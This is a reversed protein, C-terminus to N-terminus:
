KDGISVMYWTGTAIDYSTEAWGNARLTVDKSVKGLGPIDFTVTFIAPKGTHKYNLAIYGDADSLSTAVVARVGKSTAPGLLTAAAGRVSVGTVKNTIQGFVGAIRKFANASYVTDSKASGNDSFTYPTCDNVAVTTPTSVGDV